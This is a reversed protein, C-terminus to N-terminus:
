IYDKRKKKKKKYKLNNFQISNFNKKKKNQKNVKADQKQLQFCHTFKVNLFTWQLLRTRYLVSKSKIQNISLKKLFIIRKEKNRKKNFFFFIVYKM